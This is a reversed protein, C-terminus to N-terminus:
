CDPTSPNDPFTTTIKPYPLPSVTTPLNSPANTTKPLLAPAINTTTTTPVPAPDVPTSPNVPISISHIAPPSTNTTATLLPSTSAINVPVPFSVPGSVM